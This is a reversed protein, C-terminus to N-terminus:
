RGPLIFRIMATALTAQLLTTLLVLGFAIRSGLRACVYAAPIQFFCALFIWLRLVEGRNIGIADTVLLVGFLGLGLVTIPRMLRRETARSDALGHAVAVVALVAQCAGVGVFFERLNGWVWYSYPRRAAVNFEIAHTGILRFADILDFRVSARVAIYTILFGLSVLGSQWLLTTWRIDRRALARAALAAFLLGMVLPLPEFFALVYLAVGLFWAFLPRGRSLWRTLLCACGLALVPTVTNMLPFFYLKAPVFFYLISSFFATKDDGFLDRVFVYMLVAGVNSVVVVLWALAAPETSVLRLAYVLMLKGPMNSQAHLPWSARLRDFDALAAMAPYRRTVGYFANAADSAFIRELSALTLSRVVAQVCLAALLWVAIRQWDRRLGILDGATLLVVCIGSALAFVGLSSPDFPRRVYSYVWGAHRSGLPLQRDAIDYCVLLALASGAIVSAWLLRHAASDHDLWQGVLSLLRRAAHM